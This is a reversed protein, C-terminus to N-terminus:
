KKLAVRAGPNAANWKRALTNFRKKTVSTAKPRSEALQATLAAVQATLATVQDALSATNFTLFQGGKPAGLAAISTPAVKPAIGVAGQGAVAGTDIGFTYTGPNTTSETWVATAPTTSVASATGFLTLSLNDGAAGTLGEIKNGFVDTISGTVTLVGSVDATAPATFSVNYAYALANAGEVYFVRSNAGQTVTVTEVATSTTYVYINVLGDSSGSTVEVSSTGTATTKTAANWQAQTLLKAGGTATARVTASTTSAQVELRIVSLSIGSAVTANPGDNLRLVNQSAVNISLPDAANNGAGAGIQGTATVGFTYNASAPAAVLGTLALAAAAAVAILKKSM